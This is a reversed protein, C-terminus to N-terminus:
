IDVGIRKLFEKNVWNHIERATEEYGLVSFYGEALKNVAEQYLFGIMAEKYLENQDFIDRKALRKMFEARVWEHIYRATTKQGQLKTVGKYYLKGRSLEDVAEKYLVGRLAWDEVKEGDHQKHQFFARIYQDNIKYDQDPNSTNTNNNTINFYISDKDVESAPASKNVDESGDVRKNYLSQDKKEVKNGDITFKKEAKEEDNVIDATKKEVIKEVIPPLHSKIVDEVSDNAKNQLSDVAKHIANTINEGLIDDIRDDVKDQTSDIIKAGKERGIKNYFIWLITSLLGAGLVGLSGGLWNRQNKLRALLGTKRSVEEELEEENEKISTVNSNISDISGNLVEIEQSQQNIIYEKTNLENNIQKLEKELKNKQELLEQCDSEKKKLESNLEDIKAQLSEIQKKLDAINKTLENNEESDENDENDENDEADPPLIDPIQNGFPNGEPSEEPEKPNRPIPVIRDFDPWRVIKVNPGAGCVLNGDDKHVCYYQGDSGLAHNQLSRGCRSCKKVEEKKAPVYHHPIPSVKYSTKTYGLLSYLISISLAIGKAKPFGNEDRPNQFMGSDGTRFTIVGAVRTHLEGNKDAVNVLLGSGSQGDAPPPSFVLRFNQKEEIRGEWGSLWRGEPSGASYVYTTSINYNLSVLPIVKPPCKYLYKRDVALLAFDEDTRNQWFSKIVTAPVKYSKYGDKFLEIHAKKSNKVVHGNTLFIYHQDNKAICTGSGIAGSVSIRCSAELVENLTLPKAILNINFCFILVIVTIVKKIFM